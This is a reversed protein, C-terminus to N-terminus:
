ISSKEQCNKLFQKGEKQAKKLFRFFPYTITIALIIAVPISVWNSIDEPLAIMILVAGVLGIGLFLYARKFHKNSWRGAGVQVAEKGTVQITILEGM